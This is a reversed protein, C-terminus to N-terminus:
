ISMFCIERLYIFSIDIIIEKRISKKEKEYEMIVFLLIRIWMCDVYVLSIELRNIM